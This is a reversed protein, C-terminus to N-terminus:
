FSVGSCLLLWKDDYYVSYVIDVEKYETKIHVKKKTKLYLHCIDVM